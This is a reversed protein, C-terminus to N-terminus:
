LGYGLDLLARNHPREGLVASGHLLGGVGDFVVVVVTRVCHM